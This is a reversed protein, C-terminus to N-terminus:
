ASATVTEDAALTDCLSEALARVTNVGMATIRIGTEAELRTRLELNGLSDLGYESLPRDPDIARRLILGVQEAILRRLHTPWEERPLSALEARLRRGETSGQGASKFASAFPSRQAFATLWPTGLIPAYGTYVRDYRLLSEFAYAGEDPLIAADDEALATGRGIEAWAGWAIVTAPLGQAKRWHMFADLWSNAAAYAGQGPSGVM